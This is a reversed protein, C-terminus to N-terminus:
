PRGHKAVRRRDAGYSGVSARPPTVRDIRLTNMLGDWYFVPDQDERALPRVVAQQSAVSTREIAFVQFLPMERRIFIEANTRVLRINVFLPLPRFTDSDVIAEYPVYGSVAHVNALPRIWLSRGPATEVFFGSWIQLIGPESLIRIYCRGRQIKLM